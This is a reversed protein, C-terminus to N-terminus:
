SNGNSGGNTDKGAHKETWNPSTLFKVKEDDIVDLFKSIGQFTHM